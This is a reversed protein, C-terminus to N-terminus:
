ETLALWEDKYLWPGRNLIEYCHKVEKFKIKLFNDQLVSISVLNSPKWIGEFASLVVYIDIPKSSIFCGILFLKPDEKAFDWGFDPTYFLEAEENTLAISNLQPVSSSAM